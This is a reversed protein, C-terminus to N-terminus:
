NRRWDATACFRTTSLVFGPLAFATAKASSVAPRASTTPVTAPSSVSDVIAFNQSADFRAILDHSESSQDQDVVILPVNLVDTTAAYGLLTLQLLPALIIVAFLHPDRRLEIFEKRVLHLVRTM